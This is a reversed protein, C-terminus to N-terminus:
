KLHYDPSGWLPYPKKIYFRNRKYWMVVHYVFNIIQKVFKKIHVCIDRGGGIFDKAFNELIYVKYDLGESCNFVLCQKGIAKALDKVTETKGTGAPGAPSGGLHLYLAGSLTLYCRDTLPTIVLRSSCGLYEYGYQFSANAQQVM